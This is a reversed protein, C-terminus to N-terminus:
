GGIHASLFALIDNSPVALAIHPSVYPKSGVEGLVFSAVMGIVRGQSDLIPGGSHGPEVEMALAIAHDYGFDNYSVREARRPEMVKGVSVVGALHRVPALMGIALAPEGTTLRASDAFRAAMMGAFSKIKILALERQREVAVVRGTFRRGDLTIVEAKFKTSVAIHAATVVYGRPDAIFGSDYRLVNSPLGSGHERGIDEPEESVIRVRVYIGANREAVERYNPFDLGKEVPYPYSLGAPPEVRAGDAAERPGACGFLCLPALALLAAARPVAARPPRLWARTPPM